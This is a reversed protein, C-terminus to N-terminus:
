SESNKKFIRIPLLQGANNEGETNDNKMNKIINSWQERANNRTPRSDGGNKRPRYAGSMETHANDTFAFSDGSVIIHQTPNKLFKEVWTKADTKFSSLPIVDKFVKDYRTLLLLLENESLGQLLYEVYAHHYSHNGFAFMDNIKRLVDIYVQRVRFMPLHTSPLCTARPTSQTCFPQYCANTTFLEGLSHLVGMAKCFGLRGSNYSISGKHTDKISEMIRLSLLIRQVFSPISENEHGAKLKTIIDMYDFSTSFDDNFTGINQAFAELQKHHETENISKTSIVPLQINLNLTSILNKDLRFNERLLTLGLARYLTMRLAGRSAFKEMAHVGILYFLGSRVPRPLGAITKYVLLNDWM